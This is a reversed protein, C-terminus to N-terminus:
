RGPTPGSARRSSAPCSCRSPSPGPRSRGPSAASGRTCERSLGRPGRCGPPLVGDRRRRADGRPARGRHGDRRRPRRAPGAARGADRGRAPPRHPHPRLAPLHRAADRDGRPHRHRARPQRHRRSGARPRRRRPRPRALDSRRDHPPLRRRRRLPRRRAARLPPSSAPAGRAAGVRRCRRRHRRAAPARRVAPEARDRRRGGRRPGHRDRRGRGAGVADPDAPAPLARPVAPPPQPRDGRRAEGLPVPSVVAMLNATVVVWLLLTGHSAGALTNTAFNGPDVYATAAVVAPGLLPLLRRIRGPAPSADTAPSAGTTPTGVDPAPTVHPPAVTM